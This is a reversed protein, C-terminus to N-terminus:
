LFRIATVAAHLIGLSSDGPDGTNQGGSTAISVLVAIFTGLGLVLCIVLLAFVQPNARLYKRADRM